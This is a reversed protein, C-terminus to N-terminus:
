TLLLDVNPVYGEARMKTDLKGLVVYIQDSDLHLGDGAVFSRIDSEVEFVSQGSMKMLAKVKILTRLNTVNEWKNDMAYINSLLIYYGAYNPDLRFPSQQLRKHIWFAGPLAGWVHAAAPNPMREVIEMGNDLEGTRGLLDVIGTTSLDPSLNTNTCCRTSSRSADNPKVDSHKVMRDFVKLAEEGQGDVGYGAIMTSWIVVDKDTIGEFLQVANDISGGYAHLCLAQQLIGLESCAALLKVMAVADPQTTDSLMDRFVRISKYAMGNHAYGSLLAAWSVVDKEAMRNFIDGAKEPASCKMYMDILATAVTIDLEFCKRTAIEYIRKGKELNGALAYAQLATVLTMSNPEFRTDIM